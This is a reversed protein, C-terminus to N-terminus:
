GSLSYTRALKIDLETIDKYRSTFFYSKLRLFRSPRYTGASVIRRYDEISVSISGLICRKGISLYDSWLTQVFNEKLECDDNM